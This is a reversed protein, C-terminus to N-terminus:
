SEIRNSCNRSDEKRIETSQRTRGVKSNQLLKSSLTLFSVEIAGWISMDTSESRRMNVGIALMSALAISANLMKIM